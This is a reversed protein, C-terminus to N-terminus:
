VSKKIIECARNITDEDVAMNPRIRINRRASPILLLGNELCTDCFLMQKRSTELDCAIILGRGRVNLLGPISKLNTLFIEGMMQANEILAEQQYAKIIYNCRVMDVINGDWTAALRGIETFSGKTQSVRETVAIGSIQTKKGFVLIDPELGFYEYCWLKGVAGFGTQVEDFILLFQNQDAIRRLARLFKGRLHRDGGGCQIPEILIAAIKEAGRSAIYQELHELCDNERKELLIQSNEDLPFTIVPAEFRPWSFKPLSHLKIEPVQSLSAGFGSIGHYAGSFTIIELQMPQFEIELDLNFNNKWDLACKVANEVALSGGHIFFYKDFHGQSVFQHFKQIFDDYLNSFVRGSATKYTAAQIIDQNYEESSFIPHGYGLPLSAWFSFMDILKRNRIQDYLYSGHSKTFDISIDKQRCDPAVLNDSIFKTQM